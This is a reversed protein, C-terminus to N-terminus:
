KKQFIIFGMEKLWAECLDKWLDASGPTGNINIAHGGQPFVHFSTSVKNRLLAEYFFLSNEPAVSKDNFAGAIFCVPTNASVHYQPSYKKIMAESPSSGLLNDRSGKHAFSGMDIVPSILIMFKSALSFNDISDGILSYDQLTTAELAALHGGASTGMIGLRSTDIKWIKANARIVKIARQADQLPAIDRQILDRSTPLRYNVVFASMGLTNFWKALQFGGLNLTNHHYGGGPFIIVAGGNNDDVSPFFTYIGPNGVQLVRENVVSDKLNLGKSNPMKGAPYLPIFDQAIVPKCFCLLGIFIIFSIRM